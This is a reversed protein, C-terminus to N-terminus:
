KRSTAGAVSVKIRYLSTRATMFLTKGDAGGFCLNAPSERVLIRGVLKGEPSFIQVGDGSSSWINGKEDCRIGDPVGKDIVCFIKGNELTFDPGEETARPKVDFVRIHHPKGSDAIYLKREDPSFCLGNPMDFDDAAVRVSHNMPKFCFVLQKELERQQDKPTGYPPDTFWISGDSKVVVDNPSNFKKGEFSDCLTKVEGPKEEIVVKRGAHECSILRGELDRTNGNTQHSPKRYTQVGNKQDWRKLEDAPIDSFVLYGGDADTWVPGEVFQMGGAVKEVKADSPVLQSMTALDEIKVDDAQAMISGLLAAALVVGHIRM